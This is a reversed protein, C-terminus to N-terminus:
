CRSSSRGGRAAMITRTLSGRILTNAFEEGTFEPASPDILHKGMDGIYLRQSPEPARAYGEPIRERPIAGDQTGYPAPKPGEIDDVTAPDLIHFHVDFHPATYVNPPPHGEPNWNLGLFTFPTGEAAPFPLFYQQSWRGHIM